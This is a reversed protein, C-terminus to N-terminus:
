GEQKGGERTSNGSSRRASRPTLRKRRRTRSMGAAQGDFATLIRGFIGSTRPSSHPYWTPDVNAARPEFLLHKAVGAM